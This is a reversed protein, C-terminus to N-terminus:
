DSRQQQCGISNDTLYWLFLFCGCHRRATSHILNNFRRAGTVPARKKQFPKTTNFKKKEFKLSAELVTALPLKKVPRNRIPKPISIKIKFSRNANRAAATNKIAPKEAIPYAMRSKQDLLFDCSSSATLFFTVM